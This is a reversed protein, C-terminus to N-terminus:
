WQRSTSIIWDISGADTLYQFASAGRRDMFPEILGAVTRWSEPRLTCRFARPDDGTLEVGIDTRGTVGALTCGDLNQVVPLGDIQFEVGPENSALETILDHLAKAEPRTTASLLLVPRDRSSPDDLYELRM